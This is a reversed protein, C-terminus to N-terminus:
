KQFNDLQEILEKIEEPIEEPLMESIIAPVTLTVKYHEQLYQNLQSLFEKGPVIALRGSLSSWIEEFEEILKQNITTQDIGRNKSKEFPSRKFLFQAVMRSKMRETLSKFIEEAKENFVITSTTRKNHDSIRIKLARDIAKPELLYNELEKRDHIHAFVTFEKLQDRVEAVEDDSRYDRDFIVAKKITTGLTIEMGKAFERVKQPNYGEVQIAAFNSRNAVAQKKLKRAFGSLIKFDKGEVFIARKSKALQTLVPNLNSGLTEFISQLQCLDKIRKASREKKNIVLLDGPEAESIIETSHTAILIDPEMNKLLGVLQRQLDSHLYIDPEDIILLSYKKARIIYTLMQCWVQFGFGAWFIERPFREEPCFMHIIPKGHSHDIAPKQIDMGPWTFRILDRYEEFDEPYHYWINRFNRSARHTLLAKRAAEAQYLPENHEVPGLVPVFGVSAKYERKFDSTSRIPRGSTECVLYCLNTEPFIIKLKNGCSLKFEAIAPQSDDYDSFINETAVPLDDLPVRYGWTEEKKIHILEPNKASAKRIGEALIRFAGIITSKGANNPGV